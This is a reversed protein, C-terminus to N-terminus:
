RVSLWETTPRLTTRYQTGVGQMGLFDSASQRYGSGGAFLNSYLTSRGAWYCVSYHVKVVEM